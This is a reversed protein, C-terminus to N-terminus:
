PEETPVSRWGDVTQQYRVFQHDSRRQRRTSRWRALDHRWIAAMRRTEQWGIGGILIVTAILGLVILFAVATLADHTTM